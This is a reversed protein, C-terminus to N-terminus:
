RDIQRRIILKTIEILADLSLLDTNLAYDFVSLDQGFTFNYLNKYIKVNEEDRMRVIKEAEQISIGDRNGMRKARNQPSGKLWIKIIKTKKTDKTLVKSENKSEKNYTDDDGGGDIVSGTVLWPLTYSTIVANETKLIEKLKEDVKKDFTPDRKREDMFKKAEPTDWWDSKATDATTSYGKEKALMKLIDGGNYMVLGFEKALEGAITTKGVAPWGSIIISM